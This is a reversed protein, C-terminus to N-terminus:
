GRDPAVDQRIAELADRLQEAGVALNFPLAIGEAGVSGLAYLRSRRGTVGSFDDTWATAAAPDVLVTAVVHSNPGPGSHRHTGFGSVVAWPVCRGQLHVGGADVVVPPESPRGQGIGLALIFLGVLAMVLGIVVDGREATGTGPSILHLGIGILVVGCALLGLGLLVYVGVM